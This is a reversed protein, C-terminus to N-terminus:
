YDQEKEPMRPVVWKGLSISIWCTISIYVATTSSILEANGHHTAHNFSPFFYSLSILSAVFSVDKSAGQEIIVFVLISLKLGKTPSIELDYRRGLCCLQRNCLPTLRSGLLGPALFHSIRSILSADIQVSKYQTHLGLNFTCVLIWVITKWVKFLRSCLSLRQLSFFIVPIWVNTSGHIWMHISTM